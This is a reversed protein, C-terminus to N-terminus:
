KMAEATRSLEDKLIKAATDSGAINETQSECFRRIFDRHETFKRLAYVAAVKSAITGQGDILQMLAFFRQERAEKADRFLKVVFAVASGALGLLPVAFGGITVWLPVTNM